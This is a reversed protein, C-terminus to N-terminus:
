TSPVSIPLSLIKTMPFKDFNQSSPAIGGTGGRGVCVLSVRFSIGSNKNFWWLFNTERTTLDGSIGNFNTSLDKSLGDDYTFILSRILFVWLLKLSCNKFVQPPLTNLSHAQTSACLFSPFTHLPQYFRVFALPLLPM